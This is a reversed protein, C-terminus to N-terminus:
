PWKPRLAPRSPLKLQSFVSRAPAKFFATAQVVCLAHDLNLFGCAARRRTKKPARGRHCCLASLPDNLNAIHSVARSHLMPM